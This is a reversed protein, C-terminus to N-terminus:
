RNIGFRGFLRFVDDFGYKELYRLIQIRLDEPISNPGSPDFLRIWYAILPEIEKQRFMGSIIFQEFRALWDFYRDFNGVIDKEKHNMVSSPSESDLLKKFTNVLDERTIEVQMSEPTLRVRIKQWDLMRQVNQVEFCSSFDDLQRSLFEMRKWKQAASYRRLGEWFSLIAIVGGSIAIWEAASM